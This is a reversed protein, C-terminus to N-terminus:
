AFNYFFEYDAPRVSTQPAYTQFLGGSKHLNGGLQRYASHCTMPRIALGRNLADGVEVM